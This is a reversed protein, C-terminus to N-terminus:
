FFEGLNTSIGLHVSGGALHWSSYAFDVRFRSIKVGAGGSFGALSRLNPVTMEQHRLHNYGFRLRLNETKGLLFEGNIILHRATNDLFREFNSATKVAEGFNDAPDPQLAPDDYRIDRQGLNYATIGFRFPLHALRKTVGIQIDFPMKERLNEYFDVQGGFNKFVVGVTWNTATDKFIAGFDGLIASSGALILNSQAWKLNAGVSLKEYVPYGLGLTLANEKPNFDGTVNGFEDAVKIKGYNMTQVSIQATLKTKPVAQAYGFFGNQLDGVHFHHNFVLRKSMSINLAAPNQLAFGPDDDRVAIQLGGLGSIRASNPLDLFQFTQRGGLIQAQNKEFCFLFCFLFLYKIM